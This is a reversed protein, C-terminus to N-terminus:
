KNGLMMLYEIFQEKFGDYTKAVTFVLYGDQNEEFFDFASLSIATEYTNGEGDDCLYVYDKLIEYQEKPLVEDVSAIIGGTAMKNLTKEDVILYYIQDAAIQSYLAMEHSNADMQQATDEFMNDTAVAAFYNKPNYDYYELFGDTLAYKQEDSLEIGYVCGACVMKKQFVTDKILWVLLVIAVVAIITGTLYYTKFYELRKHKDMSSVKDIESKLRSLM